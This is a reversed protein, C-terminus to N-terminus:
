VNFVFSHVTFIKFVASDQLRVAMGLMGRMVFLIHPHKSIVMKVHQACCTPLYGIYCKFHIFM